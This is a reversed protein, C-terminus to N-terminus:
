EVGSSRFERRPSGGDSSGSRCAGAGEATRFEESGPDQLRRPVLRIQVISRPSRPIRPHWFSPGRPSRESYARTRARIVAHRPHQRRWLEGRTGRANQRRTHIPSRASTVSKVARQARARADAASRARRAAAAGQAPAAADAGDPAPARLAESCADDASGAAPPAVDPADGATGHALPGRTRDHPGSHLMQYALAGLGALLANGDRDDVATRGFGLQYGEKIRQEVVAGANYRRWVSLASLDAANTLVHAVRETETAGELALEAQAAEDQPRCATRREVSCLRAGYLAGTATWLAPDKESQRYPGLTRRVWAPDPVTLLFTVGLETLLTVMEKSFFGKDLRVTLETIGLQRLKGVLARMWEGAGAAPPAVNHASGARWRVGLCDGTDTFALLPHHSPRGPKRPHYGREAGAQKAGSRLVVTSDLILMVSRPVGVWAWRARVLYWVLQDLVAIMAPGGRRLWRGMTTPDPVARWGFLRRVGRAALADLDELVTGGYLLLVLWVEIVLSARYRGGIAPAHTDLREGLRLQDWVRRVLVLGGGDTLKTADHLLRLPAAAGQVAPRSAIRHHRM